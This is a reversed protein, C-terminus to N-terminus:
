STEFDRAKLGKRIMSVEDKSTVAYSSNDSGVAAALAVHGVRDGPNQAFLAHLMQAAALHFIHDKLARAVTRRTSHGFHNQVQLAVFGDFVFRVDFVDIGSQFLDILM